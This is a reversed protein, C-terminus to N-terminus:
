YATAVLQFVAEDSAEQLYKDGLELAAAYPLQTLWEPHDGALARLRKLAFLGQVRPKEPWLTGDDDFVAIRQSPTVYGRGGPTSVDTVFALIRQRAPSDRWGTLPQEGSVANTSVLLALVGLVAARQTM